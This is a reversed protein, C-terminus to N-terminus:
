KIFVRVGKSDEPPFPNFYDHAVDVDRRGTEFLEMHPFRRLVAAMTLHIETHALNMGMCNRTGKSFNVLYKELRRREAPDLGLWREPEFTMPDPFLTPNEHLMVSTMSVPTGAPITWSQFQLARDPSIRQLRHTVGYSLRYGECIVASLYPLQELVPLAPVVLPDPMVTAIEAQLRALMAPNALLHYTVVKLYHATTITGAGVVTQGEAVLRPMTKEAAPLDSNLLEHFITPHTATKHGANHGDMIARIERELSKQFDIVDYLQPFALAAVRDPLRKLVATMWYCHNNLHATQSLSKSAQYWGLAFDPKDLCGYPRAWAYETIIDTTMASYARGIEVPVDAGRFEEFRACLKDVMARIDPEFRAVSAKSFLPSLVGRRLRHHDHPVTGFMSLANDFVFCTKVWKDRKETPGTYIKGYYDPDDIHIEWPNIRVIPGYKEHMERIRWTYRGAKLVDYYFEYWMTMAAIKPGPFKAIPSFYLRYVIGWAVYLVAFSLGIGVSPTSLFDQLQLM